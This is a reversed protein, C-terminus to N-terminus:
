FGNSGHAVPQEMLLARLTEKANKFFAHDLKQLAAWDVELMLNLGEPEGGVRQLIKIGARLETAESKTKKEMSGFYEVLDGVVKTGTSGKQMAQKFLARGIRKGKESVQKLKEEADAV